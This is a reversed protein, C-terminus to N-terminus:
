RGAPPPCFGHRCVGAADHSCRSEPVSQRYPGMSSSPRMASPVSEKTEAKEYFASKIEICGIGIARALHIQAAALPISHSWTFVTWIGHVRWMQMADVALAM